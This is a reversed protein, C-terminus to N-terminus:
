HCRRGMSGWGSSGVFFLDTPLRHIVVEALPAAVAAQFPQPLVADQHDFVVQVHGVHIQIAAVGDGLLAAFVHGVLRALTGLSRIDQGEGVAVAVDDGRSANHRAILMVGEFQRIM